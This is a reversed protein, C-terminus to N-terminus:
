CCSLDRSPLAGDAGVLLSVFRPLTLSRGCGSVVLCVVLPYPEARVEDVVLCVVPPYPEARGREQNRRNSRFGRNMELVM